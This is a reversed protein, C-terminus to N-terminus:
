DSYKSEYQVFYVIFILLMRVKFKLDADLMIIKDFPFVRHYFPAMMFLDDSYKKAAKSNSTFYKRM